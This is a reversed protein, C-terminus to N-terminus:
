GGLSFPQQSKPIRSISVNRGGVLARNQPLLFVEPPLSLPYKGEYNPALYHVNYGGHTPTFLIYRMAPLADSTDETVLIRGSEPEYQIKVHELSHESGKAISSEAHGWGTGNKGEIKYSSSTAQRFGRIGGPLENNESQREGLSLRFVTGDGPSVFKQNTM